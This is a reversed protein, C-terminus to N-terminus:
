VKQMLDVFEQLASVVRKMDRKTLTPDLTFRITSSARASDDAITQVVVSAGSDAGACASKTSAAIGKSDLYIVAYETDFGPLSIHVNNPLRELKEYPGFDPGNYHAPIDSDNLLRVLETGVNYVQTGREEYDAQATVIAEVAGVIAPVNETGARLGREQGGGRVHPDLNVMHRVMLVGVGKPGNCKGADLAMLDVGLTHVKCSLWLPAQAADLQVLTDPNKQKITRVIRKVPQITGIESNAYAFVVLVTQSQILPELESIVVRGNEDVPMYRVQVGRQELDAMVASVSPHEIKTTVIEMDSYSMGAAHKAEVVGYIALNNSETGSGTFIVETSRVGLTRALDTRASELERAVAVGESHIAGPNGYVNRQLRNMTQIVSDLIPTAAAYDMYIRKHAAPKTRLFRRLRSLGYKM